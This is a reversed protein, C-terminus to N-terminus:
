NALAAVTVGDGGDRREAAEFSRVLPHRALYDRVVQRLVGTGKGHVIRVAPLGALYADNLYKDLEPGVQDARWGRIEIQTEPLPGSPLPVGYSPYDPPEQAERERRTARELEDLRAKMKFSGVQVEAQGSALATVQGISGLRRHKVWAGVAIPEGAPSAPTPAPRRRILETEAAKVERVIPGLTDRQAEGREIRAALERLRERLDALDTEAQAHANRVASAKDREVDALRKSLQRALDAVRRHEREAAQRARESREREAQIDALLSEVRVEDESVLGRARELVAESLGLRRAIALANSRGPLGISLRYTPSLTEVDFEVSANAVGPTTHAYSKLEAYHTTAVVLSGRELLEDLIARALASGEGPDTGAGLEDMLVLSRDTAKGLISIIQTMHGSFTSLSQEISQEDGIDAYVADFVRVTSGPGAPIQLGSLAMMTLLGVTKLAVTKGGTNPGTIVLVAFDAGLRITTPVVVGSLLPHRAANLRVEAAEDRGAAAVLRPQVANLAGAYRASALALDVDGLREVGDLITEASAGVLDSLEQLIRAVEREEDLQLQRWRNNLEVTQIPEVFLTAGSQSQDHVISRFKNRAEARIPIVYRGDRVTIIADQIVDAHASSSIIRNLQDMLRSYAVKTESRLRALTASAADVVEGKDSVCRSIEDEISQREALGEALDALHPIQDRLPLITRRLVRGSSLTDRVDLLEGPELRGGLATRRVLPRVDHAGGLTVGAKLELLRRAEQTIEQRDAVEQLQFSPRLDLARQRGLSFSTHSAVRELVKPLELVDLTRADV